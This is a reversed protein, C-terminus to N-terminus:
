RNNGAKCAQYNACATAICSQMASRPGSSCFCNFVAKVFDQLCPDCNITGDKKLQNLAVGIANGATSPNNLEPYKNKLMVFENALENLQAENTNAFSSPLRSTEIVSSVFLKDNKLEVNRHNLASITLVGLGILLVLTFITKMFFTKTFTYFIGFSFPPLRIFGSTFSVLM